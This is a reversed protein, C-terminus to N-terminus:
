YSSAVHGPQEMRHRRGCAARITGLLVNIDFPKEILEYPLEEQNVSARVNEGYGTLFLIETEPSVRKIAKAVEVGDTGGLRVDVIALAPRHQGALEIAELHLGTVAHKVGGIAFIEQLLWRIGPDDDIAIVDARIM